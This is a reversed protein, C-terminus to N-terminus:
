RAERESLHLKRLGQKAEANNPDLHLVISFERRADEYNGAGAHNEAMRLLLPIDKETLGEYEAAKKGQVHPQQDSATPRASM